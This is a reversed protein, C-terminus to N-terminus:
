GELQKNKKQLNRQTLLAANFFYLLVGLNYLINSYIYRGMGEDMIRPIHDSLMHNGELLFFFLLLGVKFWGNLWRWLALILVYPVLTIIAFPDFGELIINDINHSAILTVSLLFLKLEISMSSPVVKRKLPLYMWYKVM